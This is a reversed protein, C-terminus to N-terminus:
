KVNISGSTIAFPINEEDINYVNDEDYSVTIPCSGKANDKVDFYLTAFTWDGQINQTGSVMNLCPAFANANYPVTSSGALANTNYAFNTLTLNEKDYVVELLISAIGPNNKVAINVAVNTDGVKAEVNDIVFTPGDTAAEYIATIITDGTVADVTKDWGKFVYGEKQPADPYDPAEGNKVTQETIVNGESDKFTVTFSEQPQTPEASGTVDIEGAVVEFAINTEDINYINDDDYNLSIAYKGNASPKVDFYLTAFMWDGTINNTGNVMSLCTPQASANFPVTSSGSIISENYAFNTLTLADTDYNVDFALSAIGPNNKVAVSIAVNTDGPKAKVKNVVLQPQNEQEDIYIKKGISYTNKYMALYKQIATADDISLYDKGTVIARKLMDETPTVSNVLIKQILTVDTISVIGSGDADGIIYFNQNVGQVSLM